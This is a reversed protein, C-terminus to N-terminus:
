DSCARGAAAAAGIARHHRHAPLHAGTRRGDGRPRDARRGRLRGRRRRHFRARQRSPVAVAGAAHAAGRHRPPQHQGLAHGRAGPWPGHGCQRLGRGCLDRAHPSGIVTRGAQQRRGRSRGAAVAQRSWPLDRAEFACGILDFLCLKVKDTVESSLDQLSVTAASRAIRAALPEGADTTAPSETALGPAPM